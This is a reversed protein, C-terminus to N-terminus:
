RNLDTVCPKLITKSVGALKKLVMLNRKDAMLGKERFGPTEIIFPLKSSFPHKLFVFFPLIGMKGKGINEHLDHRSNFDTKSDNAHVLIWNEFGIKNKIIKFFKRIGELSKLDYGAEFAHALDLCFKLRKSKIKKIIGGIEEIKTRASNELILFTSKPTKALVQKIEKMLFAQNKILPHFIVGKANLGKALNLDEILSKTSNERIKQNESSLNILYKAHIFLPSISEKEMGERFDKIEKQNFKPGKWNRPPSSFIQLCNAGIEQAKEIIRSLGEAISLHAGLKM